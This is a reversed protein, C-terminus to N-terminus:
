IIGRQAFAIAELVVRAKHRTEDAEKQLDSDAVIGAGATVYARDQKLLAMRIAICSDFDGQADLFGIVGGYLRRRKEELTDIIQMARIKPAGSLTGAPFSACLADLADKGPALPAEVTSSIHMVHSFYQIQKLASVHVTGPKAVCGIDNRALDVLMMHEAVEKADALLDAAQTADDYGEGRPRTGALPCSQVINNQVSIMKEPSAGCIIYDENDLYFMYPSPNRYRLIRYLDFPNATFKKEFTRALVIQFADGAKIHQQAIKGASIYAADSTQACDTNRDEGQGEHENGQVFSEMAHTHILKEYFGDLRAVATKYLGNLDDTNIDVVTALIVQGTKQDFMIHDQYSKFLVDPFDTDEEENQLKEEFLRAADYSFFGVIGGVFGPLSRSCVARRAKYFDRIATLADVNMQHVGTGDQLEIHTNKIKLQAQPTFGLFSYRGSNKEKPSSELLSAGKMHTHLALFAQVPTIQDGLIEKFVTVSHNLTALKLFDEQALVNFM